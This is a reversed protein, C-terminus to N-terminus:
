GDESCQWQSGTHKDGVCGLSFSCAADDVDFAPVAEIDTGARTCGIRLLERQAGALAADADVTVAFAVPARDVEAAPVAPYVGAVDAGFGFTAVVRDAALAAEVLRAIITDPKIRAAEVM